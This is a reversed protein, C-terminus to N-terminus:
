DVVLVDTVGDVPLDVEMTGGALTELKREGHRLSRIKTIPLPPTFTVRVTGAPEGTYNAILIVGSRQSWLPWALVQSASTTAPLAVTSETAFDSFIKRKEEAPFLTAHGLSGDKEIAGDMYQKGATWPIMQVLGKGYPRRFAKTSGDPAALPTPQLDAGDTPEFSVDRDFVPRKWDAPEIPQGLRKLDGAPKWTRSKVGLMGNWGDTPQNYEDRMGAWGGCWLRGGEHVWRDIGQAAAKPVSENVVYLSKYRRAAFSGDAIEEDSVIDVPIGAHLLAVYAMMQEVQETDDTKWVPWSRSYLLAVEAKPPQGTWLQEDVAAIDRTVEGVGQVMASNDAWHDFFTYAPGYYYFDFVKAGRALCAFTRLKVSSRDADRTIYAGLLPTAPRAAARSWDMLLTNSELPVRPSGKGVWDENFGMSVGRLRGFEFADIGRPWTGYDYWWPPGFNVRTQVGPAFREVKATAMAYVRATCHNWFRTSWYFLAAQRGDGKLATERQSFFTRWGLSIPKVEEWDTFGFAAPQLGQGRAFDRFAREYEPGVFTFGAPEDMLDAIIEPMGGPHQRRTGDISNRYAKDLFQDLADWDLRVANNLAKDRPLSEVSRWYVTSRDMGAAHAMERLPGPQGGSQQWWGNMGLRRLIEFDMQAIAPDTYFEGNSRFGAMCWIKSPRPVDPLNMAKVEDLRRQTDERISLIREKLPSARAPIRVAIINGSDQEVISRLIAADEPATAIDIRAKIAPHAEKRLPPDTEFLFRVTNETPKPESLDVWACSAGAPALELAKAAESVAKGAFRTLSKGGPRQAVVQVRWPRGAPELLTARVFLGAPQTEPAGAATAPFAPLGVLFGILVAILRPPM